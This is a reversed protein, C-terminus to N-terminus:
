KKVLTPSSSVTIGPKFLTTCLAFMLVFPVVKKMDDGSYVYTIDKRSISMHPKFFIGYTFYLNWYVIM